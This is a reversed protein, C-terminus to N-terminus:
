KLESLAAQCEREVIQLEQCASIYELAYYSITGVAAIVMAIAFAKVGFPASSKQSLPKDQEM